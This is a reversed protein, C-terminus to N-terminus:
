SGRRRRTSSSPSPRRRRPAGAPTWTFAKKAEARWRADKAMEAECTARQPSEYPPPPAAEEARAAPALLLVLVILSTRM